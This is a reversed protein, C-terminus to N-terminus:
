ISSNYFYISTSVNTQFRNQLCSKQLAQLALRNYYHRYSTQHHIMQRRVLNQRLSMQHRHFNKAM